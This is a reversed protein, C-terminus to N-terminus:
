GPQKCPRGGLVDSRCSCNGYDPCLFSSSCCPPDGPAARSPVAALSHAPGSICRVPSCSYNSRTCAVHPCPPSRCVPSRVTSWRRSTRCDPAAIGSDKIVRANPNMQALYLGAIETVALRYTFSHSLIIHEHRQIGHTSQAAHFDATIRSQPPSLRECGASM